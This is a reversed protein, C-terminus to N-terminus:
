QESRFSLQIVSTERLSKRLVAPTTPMPAAAPM